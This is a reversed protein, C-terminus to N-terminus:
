AAQIFLRSNSALIGAQVIFQGNGVLLEILDILKFVSKKGRGAV